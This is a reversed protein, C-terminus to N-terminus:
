ARANSKWRRAKGKTMKRSKPAKVPEDELLPDVYTGNNVMERYKRGLRVAEEFHPDDAFTGVPGFGPIVEVGKMRLLEDNLLRLEAELAKVRQELDTLTM